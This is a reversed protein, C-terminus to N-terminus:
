TPKWVSVLPVKRWQQQTPDKYLSESKPKGEYKWKVPLIHVVQKKVRCCGLKSDRLGPHFIPQGRRREAWPGRSRGPKPRPSCATLARSRPLLHAHARAVRSSIRWASAPSSGCDFGPYIFTLLPRDWGYIAAAAKKNRYM